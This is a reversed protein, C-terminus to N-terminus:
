RGKWEPARRQFFARVGERTDETADVVATATATAQWGEEDDAAVTQNLAWLSQRVSVPAVSCIQEALKVAEELAAGPETLRNVLGLREARAADLPIGTLLLEKAVNLPLARATRFLGGCTPIVGRAVEPLGFRAATSAVVLDAALVIEMGGGLAFGEVAVILPKARDRRIVGYEGGRDTAPSKGARMDTGASFVTATGTLVAVWLDPDDDFSNLAAEIADAVERDVANRKEERQISVIFVRGRTETTVVM